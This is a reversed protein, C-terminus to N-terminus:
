HSLMPDFSAAPCITVRKLGHSFVLLSLLRGQSSCASSCTLAVSLPLLPWVCGLCCLLELCHLVGFHQMLMYLEHSLLMCAGSVVSVFM